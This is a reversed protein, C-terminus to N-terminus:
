TEFAIYITRLDSSLIEINNMSTLVAPLPLISHRYKTHLAVAVAVVARFM